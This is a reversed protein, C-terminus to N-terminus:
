HAGKAQWCVGVLPVCGAGRCCIPERAELGGARAATVVKARAQGSIGLAPAASSPVRSVMGAQDYANRCGLGAPVACIAHRQAGSTRRKRHNARRESQDPLHRDDLLRIALRTLAATLKVVDAAAPAVLVGPHSPLPLNRSVTPRGPEVSSARPRIADPLRRGSCSPLGAQCGTTCAPTLSVRLYSGVGSRAYLDQRCFLARRSSSRPMQTRQTTPRHRCGWSRQSRSSLRHVM